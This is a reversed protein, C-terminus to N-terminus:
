ENNIGTSGFGGVGRQTDTLEDATEIEPRIIPTVILQAIRMGNEVTFPEAGLNILPIKWEGRYDSDIVGVCNALTIGHKSALGSRAYTLLAVDSSDVEAALGTPIVCIQGPQIVTSENLCACLDMGASGETARQPIVANENLKKFRIKM